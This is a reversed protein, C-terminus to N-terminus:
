KVERSQTISKDIERAELGLVGLMVAGVGVVAAIIDGSAVAVFLLVLGIVVLVAYLASLISEANM